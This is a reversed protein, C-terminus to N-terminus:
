ARNAHDPQTEQGTKQGMKEALFHVQKRLFADQTATFGVIRSIGAGAYLPETECTASLRADSAQRNSILLDWPAGEKLRDLLETCHRDKEMDLHWRTTPSGATTGAVAFALEIPTHWQRCLRSVVTCFNLAQLEGEAGEAPLRVFACNERGQLREADYLLAASDIIEDLSNLLGQFHDANLQNRLRPLNLCAIAALPGQEVAPAHNREGLLSELRQDLIHLDDGASEGEAAPLRQGLARLRRSLGSGASALWLGFVLAASGGLGALWWLPQRYSALMTGNQLEIRVRGAPSAEFTVPQRFIAPESESHPAGGQALLRGDPGYAYAGVVQPTGSVLDDLLVQLSIIDGNVLPQRATEALQESLAEGLTRQQQRALEILQGHLILILALGTALAFVAFASAFKLGFGFPRKGFDTPRM